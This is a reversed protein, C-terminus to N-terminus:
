GINPSVKFRVLGLWGVILTWSFVVLGLWMGAVLFANRAASLYPFSHQGHANIREHECWTILWDVSLFLPVLWGVSVLSLALILVWRLM